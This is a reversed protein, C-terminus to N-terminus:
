SGRVVIQESRDAEDLVAIYPLNRYADNYDLGYGVVFEDPIEFGVHDPEISAARRGHKRLLVATRIAKPGALRLQEVLHALTHGTDFIDDVLLVNRGNIDPLMSLDLRLNAPEEAIGSYSSAQVLGIRLPLDLRRILDSLLIISGNLVGLVTVAQARYHARLERALRDVGEAIQEASLLPKM